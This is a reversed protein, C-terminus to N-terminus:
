VVATYRHSPCICSSQSLRILPNHEYPVKRGTCYGGCVERGATVPVEAQQINALCIIVTMVTLRASAAQRFTNACIMHHPLGKPFEGSRQQTDVITCIGRRIGPVQGTHLHYTPGLRYERLPGHCRDPARTRSVSNICPRVEVFAGVDNLWRQIMINLWVYM